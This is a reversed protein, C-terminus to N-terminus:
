VHRALRMGGQRCVMGFALCAQGCYQMQPHRSIPQEADPETTELGPFLKLDGSGAERGFSDFLIQRGNERYLGIWHQGPPRDMTNVIVFHTSGDNAPQQTAPFAGRYFGDPMLQRGVTDLDHTSTRASGM